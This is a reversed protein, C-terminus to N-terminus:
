RGEPLTVFSDGFVTEWEGGANRQQISATVGDRGYDDILRRGYRAEEYTELDYWYIAGSAEADRVGLRFKTM